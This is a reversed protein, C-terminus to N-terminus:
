GSRHPHSMKQYTKLVDSLLLDSLKKGAVLDFSKLKQVFNDKGPLIELPKRFTLILNELNDRPIPKYLAKVIEKGQTLYIIIGPDTVHYALM